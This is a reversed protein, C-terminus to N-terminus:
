MRSTSVCASYSRLSQFVERHLGFGGGSEGGLQRGAVGIQDRKVHGAGDMILDGVVVGDLQDVREGAVFEVGVLLVVKFQEALQDFGVFGRVKGRIRLDLADRRELEQQRIVLEGAGVEGFQESHVAGGGVFDEFTLAIERGVVDAKEAFTEADAGLEEDASVVQE